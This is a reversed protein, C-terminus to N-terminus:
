WLHYGHSGRHTKSDRNANSDTTLAGDPPNSPSILTHHPTCIMGYHCLHLVDIPRTAHYLHLPRANALHDPTHLPTSATTSFKSSSPGHPATLIRRANACIITPTPRLVNVPQLTLLTSLSCGENCMKEFHIATHRPTHWISDYLIVTYAMSSPRGTTVCKCLSRGGDVVPRSWWSFIHM